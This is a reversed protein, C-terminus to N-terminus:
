RRSITVLINDSIEDSACWRTNEIHDVVVLLNYSIFVPLFRLDLTYFRIFPSCFNIRYFCVLCVHSGRFPLFFIKWSMEFNSSNAENIACPMFLRSYISQRLDSFKKNTNWFRNLIHLSYYRDFFLNIGPAYVSLLRFFFFSRCKRIASTLGSQM